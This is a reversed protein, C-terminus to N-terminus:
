YKEKYVIIAKSLYLTTNKIYKLSQLTTRSGWVSLDFPYPNTENILFVTLKEVDHITEITVSCSFHENCGDSLWNLM